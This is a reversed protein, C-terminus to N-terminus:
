EGRRLMRKIAMSGRRLLTDKKDQRKRVKRQIDNRVLDIGKEFSEATSEARYMKGALWFNGEVRFKDGTRGIQLEELEIDLKVDTENQVFKQLTAFKETILGQLEENPTTNTHKFSIQFDSM